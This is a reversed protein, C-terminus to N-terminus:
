RLLAVHTKSQRKQQILLDEYERASVPKSYLYGQGYDCGSAALLKGQESTEIGEAIVEMGFIHAINIIERCLLMNRENETINNVFSRDIKLFDSNIQQLYSLSSYGTGFDDLAIKAGGKRFAELKDTVGADFDLMMSETIEVILADYPLNLTDMHDFWAQVVCGDDRYQSPSTNVSIKLNRDYKERWIALQETSKYFIWNGIDVIMGTEEALRIISDAGLLGYKPHQWRILTEAKIIRGSKMDIIPQYFVEFQEENVATRLENIYNAYEEDCVDVAFDAASFGALTAM